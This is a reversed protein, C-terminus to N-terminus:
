VSPRCSLRRQRSRVSKEAAASRCYSPHTPSQSTLAVSPWGNLGCRPPAASVACGASVSPRSWWRRRSRARRRLASVSPLQKILSDTQAPVVCAAPWVQPFPYPGVAHNMGASVTPFLVTSIPRSHTVRPRWDDTRATSQIRVRSDFKMAKLM